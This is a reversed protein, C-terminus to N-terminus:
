PGTSFASTLHLPTPLPCRLGWIVLAWPHQSAADLFPTVLPTSLLQVQDKPIHCPLILCPHSPM